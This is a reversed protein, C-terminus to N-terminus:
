LFCQALSAQKKAFLLSFITRIRMPCSFCSQSMGFGTGFLGGSAIAYLSQITQYGTGSPDSYPNGFFSLIRKLSYADKIIIFIAGAFGLVAFFIAYRMQIGGMILLVFATLGIIIATSKNPQLFILGCIAGILLLM